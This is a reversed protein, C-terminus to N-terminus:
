SIENCPGQNQQPIESCSGWSPRIRRWPCGMLIRARGYSIAVLAGPFGICSLITDTSAGPWALVIGGVVWNGASPLLQINEQSKHHRTNKPPNASPLAIPAHQERLYECISYASLRHLALLIERHFRSVAHLRQPGCPQILINNVIALGM